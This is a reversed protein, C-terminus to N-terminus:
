REREHARELDRQKRKFEPTEIRADLAKCIEDLLDSIHVWEESESNRVFCDQVSFSEDTPQFVEYPDIGDTWFYRVECTEPNIRKGQEIRAILFAQLEEATEGRRRPKLSTIAWNIRELQENTM